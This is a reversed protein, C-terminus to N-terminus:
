VLEIFFLEACKFFGKSIALQFFILVQIGFRLAENILDILM